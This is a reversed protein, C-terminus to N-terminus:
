RMRMASLCESCHGDGFAKCMRKAQRMVESFQAM